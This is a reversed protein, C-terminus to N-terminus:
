EGLRRGPGRQNSWANASASGSAPAARRNDFATGHSRAQPAASGNQAFWRKVFEPIKTYNRGGGFTPWIRTLFDYLHAALLGTGQEMAAPPGHMIFTLLLLAYPLYKASFTLIFVTVNTLPNDQAFTYAVSLILADLFTYGGFYGGALA